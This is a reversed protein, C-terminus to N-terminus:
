WGSGFKGCRIITYKTQEWKGATSNWILTDGNDPDTIEDTINVRIRVWESNTISDIEEASPQGITIYYGDAQGLPSALVATTATFVYSNGDQYELTIEDGIEVNSLYGNDSVSNGNGTSSADSFAIAQDGGTRFWAGTTTTWQGSSGGFTAQKVSWRESDTQIRPKVDDMSVVTLSQPYYGAQLGSYTTSPTFSSGDTPYFVAKSLRVMDVKLAVPVALYADSNITGVSVPASSDAFTANSLPLQGAYGGDFHFTLTTNVKTVAIHHWTQSQLPVTNSQFNGEGGKVFLIAPNDATPNNLGFTFSHNSSYSARQGVVLAIDGTSPITDDVYIWAEVTFDDSALTFQNGDPIEVGGTVGAALTLSFDSAGNVGPQAYTAGSPITTAAASYTSSDEPGTGNDFTLRLSVEPPAAEAESYRLVQKVQPTVTAVDDLDQTVQVDSTGGGGGGTGSIEKITNDTHKVFLKGDATNVAIEAVELDVASPVEGAVSSKKPKIRAPFDAM